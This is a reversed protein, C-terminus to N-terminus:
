YIHTTVYLNFEDDTGTITASAWARFTFGEYDSLPYAFTEDVDTHPSYRILNDDTDYAAYAVERDETHAANNSFNGSVSLLMNNTGLIDKCVMVLNAIYGHQSDTDVYTDNDTSRATCTIVYEIGDEGTVSRSRSVPEIEVDVILTEKVNGDADRIEAISNSEIAAEMVQLNRSDTEAAYTVTPLMGVILMVALCLTILKRM